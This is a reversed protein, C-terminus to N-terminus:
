QSTYLHLVKSSIKKIKMENDNGDTTCDYDM